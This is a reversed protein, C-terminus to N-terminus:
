DTRSWGRGTLTEFISGVAIWLDSGVAVSVITVINPWYLIYIPLRLTACKQLHMVAYKYRTHDGAKHFYLPVIMKEHSYRRSIKRRIRGPFRKM